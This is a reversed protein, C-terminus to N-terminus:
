IAPAHPWIKVIQDVLKTSRDRISQEDWNEPASDLLHKNLFLVSHNRLSERKQQWPGNSVSSNLKQTVLTLNGLERVSNDRRAHDAEEDETSSTIPWNNSAAWGQPLIHEVTLNDFDGANEAFETRLHAEIAELVMRQRGATGRMRSGILTEKLENDRPWWRGNSDQSELHKILESDVENSDVNGLHRITEEFFRNLGTAQYGCLMRRVLYSELAIHCRERNEWQTRSSYLWMLLPTVTGVELTKVRKLFTKM